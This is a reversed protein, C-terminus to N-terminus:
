KIETTSEITVYIVNFHSDLNEIANNLMGQYITDGYIIQKYQLANDVQRKIYQNLAHLFEIYEIPFETRNRYHQYLIQNNSDANNVQRLAIYKGKDM